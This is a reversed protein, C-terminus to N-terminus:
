ELPMEYVYTTPQQVVEVNRDVILYENNTEEKIKMKDRNNLMVNFKLIGKPQLMKKIEGLVELAREKTKYEQVIGCNLILAHIYYSEFLPKYHEYRVEELKFLREKDQTCVWLEM